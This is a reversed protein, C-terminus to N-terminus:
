AHEGDLFCEIKYPLDIFANDERYVLGRVIKEAM